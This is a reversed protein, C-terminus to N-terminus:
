STKTELWWENDLLGNEIEPIHRTTTERKSHSSRWYMDNMTQSLYILGQGSTEKWSCSVRLIIYGYNCTPYDQLVTPFESLRHSWPGAKVAQKFSQILREALGNSAPHYPASRIHRIGNAKMFKAFDTATFQPGNDTVIQEPLGYSAFINRLIKITKAVTTSSMEHIEPWKSHADVALLFM